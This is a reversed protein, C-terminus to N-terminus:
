EGDLEGILEKLKEEVEVLNIIIGQFKAVRHLFMLTSAWDQSYDDLLGALEESNTPIYVMPNELIGGFMKPHATSNMM